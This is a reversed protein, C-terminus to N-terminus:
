KKDKPPVRAIEVIRYEGEKVAKDIQRSAWIAGAASATGVAIVAIDYLHKM